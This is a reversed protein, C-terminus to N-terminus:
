CNSNLKEKCYRGRQCLDLCFLCFIVHQNKESKRRNGKLNVTSIFTNNIIILVFMIGSIVRKILPYSILDFVFVNLYLTNKTTRIELM